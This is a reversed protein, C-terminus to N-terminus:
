FAAEATDQLVNDKLSFEQVGKEAKMNTIKSKKLTSRTRELFKDAKQKDLHEKGLMKLLTKNSLKASKDKHSEIFLQIVYEIGSVDYSHSKLISYAKSLYFPVIYSNFSIQIFSDKTSWNESFVSVFTGIFKLGDQGRYNVVMSSLRTLSRKIGDRNPGASTLGLINLIETATTRISLGSSGNAHRNTLIQLCAILVRFDGDDCVAGSVQLFDGESWVNTHFDSGNRPLELLDGKENKATLAAREQTSISKFVFNRAVFTPIHPIEPNALILGPMKFDEHAPQAPTQDTTNDINCVTNNEISSNNFCDIGIISNVDKQEARLDTNGYVIHRAAKLRSTVRPGLMDITKQSLSSAKDFAHNSVYLTPKGSQFRVEVLSELHEVASRNNIVLEDVVLVDVTRLAHRYYAVNAQVSERRQKDAAFKLSARTEGADVLAACTVYLGSKGALIQQLISRVADTTKGSGTGGTLFYDRELDQPLRSTLGKQLADAAQLYYRYPIQANTLALGVDTHTATARAFGGEEYVGLDDLTLPKPADYEVPAFDPATPFMGERSSFISATVTPPTATAATFSSIACNVAQAYIADAAAFKLLANASWGEAAVHKAFVRMAKPSSKFRAQLVNAFDEASTDATDFFAHIKEITNTM